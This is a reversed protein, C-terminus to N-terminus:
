LVLNEYKYLYICVIYLVQNFKFFGYLFKFSLGKGCALDVYIQNLVLMLNLILIPIFKIPFMNKYIIYFM